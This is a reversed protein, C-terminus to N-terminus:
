NFYFLLIHGHEESDVGCGPDRDEILEGRRHTGLESAAGQAGPVPQRRCALDGRRELDVDVRHQPGVLVQAVLAEDVQAATAPGDDGVVGSQRGLQEGVDLRRTASARRSPTPTPM